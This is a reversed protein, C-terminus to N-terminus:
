FQIYRSFYPVVWYLQSRWASTGLLRGNADHTELITTFYRAGIIGMLKRSTAVADVPRTYCNTNPTLFNNNLVMFFFRICLDENLNPWGTTNYLDIMEAARNPNIKMDKPSPQNPFLRAAVDRRIKKEQTM